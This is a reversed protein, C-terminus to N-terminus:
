VERVECTYTASAPDRDIEADDAIHYKTGEITIRDGPRPATAGGNISNGFLVIVKTGNETVTGAADALRQYDIFGRCAYDTEVITKGAPSDGVDGLVAALGALLVGTAASVWLGGRVGRRSWLSRLQRAARHTM